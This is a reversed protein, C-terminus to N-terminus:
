RGAMIARYMKRATRCIEEGYAEIFNCMDEECLNETDFAYSFAAAHSAEHRCVRMLLEPTIKNSRIYIECSDFYTMGYAPGEGTELKPDGADVGYVDWLLNNFRVKCMHQAYRSFIIYALQFMALRHM